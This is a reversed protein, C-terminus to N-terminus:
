KDVIIIIFYIMLLSKHYMGPERCCESGQYFGPCNECLKMCNNGNGGGMGGCILDNKCDTDLDCDGQGLGCPSSQTCCTHMEEWTGGNCQPGTIHIM